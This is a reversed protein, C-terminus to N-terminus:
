AKIDLLAGTLQDQTKISAVNAEVGRSLVIQEAVEEAIDTQSFTSGNDQASSTNASVGGGGNENFTTDKPVFDDTNVNAVNNASNNLGTQFAQIASTNNSITM